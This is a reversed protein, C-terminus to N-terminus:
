KLHKMKREYAEDLPTLANTIDEILKTKELLLRCVLHANTVSNLRTSKRDKSDVPLTRRNTAVAVSYNPPGSHISSLARHEKPRPRAACYASSKWATHTSARLAM